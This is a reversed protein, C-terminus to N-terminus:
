EESEPDVSPPELERRAAPHTLAYLEQEDTPICTACFAEGFETLRLSRQVAKARPTEKIASLAHPQAELVQYAIADELPEDSFHVLGLRQLNGLYAAAREPHRAGAQQSAMNLNQEVLQSGVGILNAARVDVVPQPGDAALLRLIRAEDPALEGLVHGFAPHVGDPADVDASQRLLEAGQVRLARAVAAEDAEADADAFRDGPATLARLREELDTIGLLERAYGRIGTSFEQALEAATDPDVTARALRASARLGAGVGWSAGRVWAAAALRALEPLAEVLRDEVNVVVMEGDGGGLDAATLEVEGDGHYGNLEPGEAPMAVTAPEESGAIFVRDQEQASGDTV